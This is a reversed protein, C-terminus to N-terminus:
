DVLDAAVAGAAAAMLFALPDAALSRGMTSLPVPTRQLAQWVQRADACVLRHRSLASRQSTLKSLVEESIGLEAAFDPDLDLDAITVSCHLLTTLVSLSHHSVGRHSARADGSSARLVAVPSGGLSAAAHLATASATGSFGWKTGTGMVGPGPAVVCIDAGVVSRAVMLASPISVAEYDGGFSQGATITASLWGDERLRAVTQSFAAPLAASDDHVYAVRTDPRRARVAALLPTLASHLDAVVVPMRGLDDCAELRARYPSDAEEAALVMHQHPLYRAKMVHGVQPLTDAPLSQTAITTAFGGTGLSKALASCDIRVEMGVKVAGVLQPLVAIRVAEGPLFRAAGVPAATIEVRATVFDERASLIELIRAQRQMVM